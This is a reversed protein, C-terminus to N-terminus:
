KLALANRHRAHVSGDPVAGDMGGDDRRRDRRVPELAEEPRRGPLLLHPLQLHLGHRLRHLRIGAHHRSGQVQLQGRARLQRVVHDGDLGLRLRAGGSLIVFAVTKFPIASTMVRRMVIIATTHYTMYTAQTLLFMLLPVSQEGSGILASDLHIDLNPYHYVMGLVDFFYETIFYNGSFNVIFVYLFAKFWYSDHWPLEKRSGIVAPVVFLPLAIVLGLLLVPGDGFSGTDFFAEFLVLMAIWVPVYALFFKEGWARDPNASFWRPQTDEIYSM